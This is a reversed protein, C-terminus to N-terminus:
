EEDQEEECPTGIFTFNLEQCLSALRRVTESKLSYGTTSGYTEWWIRMSVHLDKGGILRRIQDARPELLDLIYKAHAEPERSKVADKSDVAWVGWPQELIGSVSKYRDGKRFAWSPRVGLTKTIEEPVLNDSRLAFSVGVEKCDDREDEIGTGGKDAM